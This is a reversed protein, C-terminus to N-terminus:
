LGLDWPCAASRRQESQKTQLVAHQFIAASSQLLSSHNPQKHTDCLCTGINTNHLSQPIICLQPALLFDVLGLLALICVNLIEHLLM